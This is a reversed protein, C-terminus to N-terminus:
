LAVRFVNARSGLFFEDGVRLAAPQGQPVRAGNGLFTGYTSGLDYLIFMQTQPNFQLKCHNRSIGNPGDPLILDCSSPDKGILLGQPAVPFSRGAYQGSIGIIQPNM